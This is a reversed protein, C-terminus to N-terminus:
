IVNDKNSKFKAPPKRQIHSGNINHVTISRIIFSSTYDTLYIKKGEKVKLIDVRQEYCLLLVHLNYIPM